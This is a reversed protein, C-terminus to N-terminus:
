PTFEHFEDITQTRERLVVFTLVQDLVRQEHPQDRELCDRSDTQSAFRDVRDELGNLRLECGGDLFAFTTSRIVRTRESARWSSPCSRISYPSSPPRIESTATAAMPRAPPDTLVIKWVM